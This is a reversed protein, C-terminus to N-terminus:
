TTVRCTFPFQKAVHYCQQQLNWAAVISNEHKEQLLHQSTTCCCCMHLDTIRAEKFIFGDFM